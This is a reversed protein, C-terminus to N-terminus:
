IDVVMEVTEGPGVSAVKRVTGDSPLFEYITNKMDFFVRGNDVYTYGCYFSGDLKEICTRFQPYSDFLAETTIDVFVTYNHDVEEYRDRTDESSFSNYGSMECASIEGTTKNMKYVHATDSTHYYYVYDGLECALSEINSYESTFAEGDAALVAAFADELAAQRESRIKEYKNTNMSASLLKIRLIPNADYFGYSTTLLGSSSTVISVDRPVFVLVAGGIILAIIVSLLVIIKKSMIM